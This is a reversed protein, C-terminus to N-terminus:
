AVASRSVGFTLTGRRLKLAAELNRVTDYSPNTTEGSEIRSITGKNVGSEEALRDMTWNRRERAERVTLQKM